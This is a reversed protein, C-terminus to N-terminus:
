MDRTAGEVKCDMYLFRVGLSRGVHGLVIRLHLLQSPTGGLWLNSNCLRNPSVYPGLYNGITNQLEKEITMCTLIGRFGTSM